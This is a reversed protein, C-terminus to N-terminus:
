GEKFPPRDNYLLTFLDPYKDLGLSRYISRLSNNTGFGGPNDAVFVSFGKDKLLKALAIIVNPHTTIASSVEAEMLLNPKILVKKALSKEKRWIFDFGRALLTYLSDIDYGFDERKFILVRYSM